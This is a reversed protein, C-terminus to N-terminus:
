KGKNEEKKIKYKLKDKNKEFEEQIKKKENIFKMSNKTLVVAMGIWAIIIYIYAFNLNVSDTIKIFLIVNKAWIRDIINGIAGAIAFSLVVKTGTKIYTNDSKIYRIIMIVIIISMIIYYGNNTSSEMMTAQNKRYYIIKTIQDLILIILTFISIYGGKEKKM